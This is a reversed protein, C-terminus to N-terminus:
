IESWCNSVGLVALIYLSGLILVYGHEKGRCVGAHVNSERVKEGLSKRHFVLAGHLESLSAGCHM